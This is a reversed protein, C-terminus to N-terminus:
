DLGLRFIWTKWDISQFSWNLNFFKALVFLVGIVVFKFLMNLQGFDIM